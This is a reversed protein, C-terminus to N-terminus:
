EGGDVKANSEEPQEGSAELWRDLNRPAHEAPIIVEGFLMDGKKRNIVMPWSRGEASVPISVGWDAAKKTWFQVCLSGAANQMVVLGESRDANWREGRVAGAAVDSLMRGPARLGAFLELLRGGPKMGSDKGARAKKAGEPGQGQGACAAHARLNEEARGVRLRCDACTLLHSAVRAREDEGLERSAFLVVEGSELCDEQAGLHALLRQACEVLDREQSGPTSKQPNTSM